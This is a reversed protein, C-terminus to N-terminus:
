GGASEAGASRLEALPRLPLPGKPQLIEVAVRAPAEVQQHIPVLGRLAAPIEVGVVAFRCRLVGVDEVHGRRPLGFLVLDVLLGTRVQVPPLPVPRYGEDATVSGAFEWDGRGFGPGGKRYEQAIAQRVEPRVFIGHEGTITEHRV